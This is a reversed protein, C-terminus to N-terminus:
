FIPSNILQNDLKKKLIEWINILDYDRLNLGEDNDLFLYTIIYKDGDRYEIMDPIDYNRYGLISLIEMLKEIKEQFSDDDYEIGFPIKRLEIEM